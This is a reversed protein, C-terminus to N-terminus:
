IPVPAHVKLFKKSAVGNERVYLHPLLDFWNVEVGSVHM